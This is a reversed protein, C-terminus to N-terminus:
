AACPKQRNACAKPPLNRYDRSPIGYTARFLRNFHTPNTFGWRGAIGPHPPDEPPPQCPRPPPTDLGGTAHRGRLLQQLHRLSIHHADAVTQPTMAPDSVQQEVFANIRAGLASQRGEPSLAEDAELCRAIIPVSLVSQM